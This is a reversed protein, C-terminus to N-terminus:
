AAAQVALGESLYVCDGQEFVRVEGPEFAQWAEDHTLPETAILTMRDRPGNLTALDVSLDGDRLRV